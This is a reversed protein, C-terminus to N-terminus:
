GSSEDVEGQADLTALAEWLCSHCIKPRWGKPRIGRDIARKTIDTVDVRDGCRACNIFIENDKREAFREAQAFTPTNPDLHVHHFGYVDMTAGCLDCGSKKPIGGITSEGIPRLPEFCADCIEFCGQHTTSSM